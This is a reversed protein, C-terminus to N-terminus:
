APNCRGGRLDMCTGKCTKSPQTTVVNSASDSITSLVGVDEVGNLSNVLATSLGQFLSQVVYSLPNGLQFYTLREPEERRRASRRLSISPNQGEDESQQNEDEVPAELIDVASAGKDDDNEVPLNRKDEVRPPDEDPLYEREHSEPADVPSNEVPADVPSNEVPADVPSNEVPADVPSNEVSADVPSNEVPADVPSNEVPADVPSNEQNGERRHTEGNLPVPYVSEDTLSQGQGEVPQPIEHMTSFRLTETDRSDGYWWHDEEPNLYSYDEVVQPGPNQRTRPKSPKIPTSDPIHPSPLFGCPLLLDRHLTRLPGDGTESRVTYVPLDGARKEVVYVESEWKDALKHKGRLRVNRVLVRDGIELLSPTVSKDFRTKNKKASKMAGRSALVYSERLHSKLQRVYESHPQKPKDQHPLGFALDVPLRPQRGFMLEYPTFGTVEHKTCNYAHVLPRVFEKWRTKDKAELTGLMSLLTRNFREVPNGRPHYPTTRSKRIGSVECLEKIVHSEFDPGQDSHLCEPFGYHTVFNEWLCKAVTRAKQNPTPIAVAYKTFFDTIVLIDKTNSGDPEVSLFDMCVLQLPRAAQINVLPAAKQPQAKRRVCRGCGKIKQEVDAAMRPWYFRSRVLDVTREVGLHGMDDHLSSMVLPRLEEPLVLQYILLSNEQKKRYLVGDRLELRNWEKLFLPFTPLEKRVTPSPKDGLELHFIVERLVPDARQKDRIEQPLYPMVPLGDIYGEQEYEVPVADAHLALSEVLAVESEADAYQTILHKECIANVVDTTVSFTDATDHLHYKMFQHIREQEKSSWATEPLPEQPRRSLSDADVNQKGARYQLKFSYTSLAALWRYSTADLKATTLVYTLPNSDTVVTFQNGYLYDSFKETVAWKLALFELKHAPYRSESHSLGRSAFAIARMSGDQEQYLAAGLGKTSADTHLFYPLKPDAFGLVPASTLKDILSQFAEECSPTWRDGFSEKPNHYQGGKDCKKINRRLPPYGSTLDNLPKAIRSYDKIFRRYYGYDKLRSLVNLLRAEHEELTESFVILDDLFVLVERLNIDGMCKEMLRQFTSPANTVGQPMRNFEWFGLPCVFATKPKDSEEVEIQYYGSKLDLVSFWKSGTLASFTDELNPLAYADKMTQLNLKRYDICLRVDGNKKKVVVIPSSFSSESERIVGSALLDRLHKRVAEIDQPHIPRARQKFPTQDHLKISHKVKKTHGFDLDHQSFVEPMERLKKSIRDKWEQPLPSDDFNFTFDGVGNGSSSQSLPFAPDVAQLEAIVCRPQITIDHKTENTLVVPLHNLLNDSQNLLCRKVFVGGPLSSDPSHEVLLTQKVGCPVTVSGGLVVTQGAALVKPAKSKLRVHGLIGTTNQRRRIELTKLVVRYGYSCPQVNQPGVSLYKEYLVDLTNTGILVLSQAKVDPVILAVTPVGVSAGFFEEPFTIDLEIFGEYPVSLGNAGEVELIDAIPSIPHGSLHQEYFSRPVTTVQSGTDLLCNCREDAIIVEATCRAGVLGKPLSTNPVRLSQSKNSVHAIIPCGLELEAGTASATDSKNKEQKNAAENLSVKRQAKPKTVLNALQSQLKAIQRKLEKTETVLSAMSSTEGQDVEASIWARQSHMLARPKSSGLHQKMRFVKATHKDEETRLMLLLQAFSPPNNQKRELQLDTILDNDWCGRCFQKLLHRDAGEPTVGGGKITVRLATQLRHLYASPKEGADQLTNMFKAFLEDGDEVVGFASDLLQLYASSPADSSLHKIVDAAPPLLSDVIKRSVHLDSLTSDKLVLEVSSRWTDYDVENGSRPFKGSFLRLRSQALGQTTLEGSRVVHEIVLKQVDPPNLVQSSFLLPEHSRASTHQPPLDDSRSAKVSTTTLNEEPLSQHSPENADSDCAEAAPTVPTLESSMESLMQSLVTEFQIGSLKAIKELGELYSKTAGSGLHQTFVNSLARVHFSVSPDSSLQHTYPLQSGLSQLAQGSNYEIVTSKYFESEKDTISVTKAFSGYQKLIDLLEEDSETRTLGSIIVSNPIKIGEAEIIDM